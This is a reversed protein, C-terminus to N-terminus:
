PNNENKAPFLTKRRLGHEKRRKLITTCSVGYTESIERISKTKLEELPCDFRERNPGGKGRLPIGESLLM